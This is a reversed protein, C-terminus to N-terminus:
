LFSLLLLLITITRGRTLKLFKNKYNLAKLFKINIVKRTEVRCIKKSSINEVNYKDKM